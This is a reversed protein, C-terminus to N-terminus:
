DLPEIYETEINKIRIQLRPHFEFMRHKRKKDAEKLARIAAEKGSQKAGQYDAISEGSRRMQSFVLLFPGICSIAALLNQTFGEVLIAVGLMVLIIMTDYVGENHFYHFAEHGFVFIKEDNNLSNLFDKGLFIKKDSTTQALFNKKDVVHFPNTPFKINREIALEWLEKTSYEKCEKKTHWRRLALQIGVAVFFFLVLISNGLMLELPSWKQNDLLVYLILVLPLLGLIMEYKRIDVGLYSLFKALIESRKMIEM